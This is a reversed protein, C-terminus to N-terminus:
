AEGGAAGDVKTPEVLRAMEDWTIVRREVEHQDMGTVPEEDRPATVLSLQDEIFKGLKGRAAELSAQRDPRTPDQAVDPKEGGAAGPFGGGAAAGGGMGAMTLMMPQKVWDAGIKAFRRNFIEDALLRGEGPTLVNARVLTDTMRMLTEADRIIPSMTKVGILSYGRQTMFCREFTEDWEQRLPQATQMEFILLIAEATARNYDKAAGRLIRHVRMTEATKDRNSEDYGQFIAEDAQYMREIKISVKNDGASGSRLPTGGAPVAELILAKHFNKRGRMQAFYQQLREVAGRALKGNEVMVIFPPMGKEDFYLLNTEEMAASGLVARLAGYWRPVGYVSRSDPVTWHLIENAKREHKRQEEDLEGLHKQWAGEDRYVKGTTQSVIRPDGFEKFWIKSLGETEDVQCWRRFRRRVKVERLGMGVRIREVVEVTEADLKTPRLRLFSVWAMRAPRGGADRIVEWAANGIGELEERTKKRGATLSQKEFCSRLWVEASARERRVLTQYRKKGEAIEEETPWEPETATKGQEFDWVREEFLLAGVRGGFDEADEELLPEVAVGFGDVVAQYAAVCQRLVNSNLYVTYLTTLPIPPPVFDGWQEDDEVGGGGVFWSEGTEVATAKLLSMSRWSNMGEMSDETVDRGVMRVQGHGGGDEGGESGGGVGKAM